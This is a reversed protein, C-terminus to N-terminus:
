DELLDNFDIGFVGKELGTQCFDIQLEVLLIFSHKCKM